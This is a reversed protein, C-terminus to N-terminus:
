MMPGAVTIYRVLLPRVLPRDLAVHIQRGSGGGDLGAVAQVM